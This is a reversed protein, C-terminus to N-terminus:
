AKRWVFLRVGLGATARGTVGGGGAGRGDGAAGLMAQRAGSAGCVGGGSGGM